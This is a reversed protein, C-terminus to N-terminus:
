PTAETTQPEYQLAIAGWMGDLGGPYGESHKHMDSAYDLGFVDKAIEHPEKGYRKRARNYVHPMAEIPGDGGDDDPDVEAATGLDRFAEESSQDPNYPVDAPGGEGDVIEGERTVAQDVPKAKPKRTARPKPKTQEPKGEEPASEIPQSQRIDEMDQTFLDSMRGASLAADVLARKKAMKILTNVQTHIDPNEVQGVDMKAFGHPDGKWQVGCGGKKVFCYWGDDFKSKLVAPAGCDPCLREGKRYRYRGEYSNCNGYGEDVSTGIPMNPLETATKLVCRFTYSFLPLKGREPWETEWDEEKDVVEYAPALKLLKVLKEAGPKFLTPKQTGPIVGFDFDETMADQIWAQFQRLQEFDAAIETNNPLAISTQTAM